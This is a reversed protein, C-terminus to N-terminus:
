RRTQYHYTGPFSDAAMWDNSLIPIIETQVFCQQLLQCNKSWGFKKTFEIIEFNLHPVRCKFFHTCSTKNTLSVRTEYCASQPNLSLSVLLIPLSPCLWPIKEFLTTFFQLQTTINRFAAACGIRYSTLCLTPFQVINFLIWFQKFQEFTIATKQIQRIKDLM